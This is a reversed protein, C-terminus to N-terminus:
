VASSLHLQLTRMCQWEASISAIDVSGASELVEAARLLQFSLCNVLLLTGVIETRYSWLQSLQHWKLSM